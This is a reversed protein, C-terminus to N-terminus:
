AYFSGHLSFREADIEVAEVSVAEMAGDLGDDASRGFPM